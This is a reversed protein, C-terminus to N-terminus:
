EEPRDEKFLRIAHDMEGPSFVTQAAQLVKAMARQKAGTNGRLVELHLEQTAKYLAEREEPSFRYGTGIQYM